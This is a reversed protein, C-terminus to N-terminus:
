TDLWSDKKPREKMPRQGFCPCNIGERPKEGNELVEEPAAPKKEETREDKM